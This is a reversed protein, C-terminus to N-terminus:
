SVLALLTSVFYRGYPSDTTWAQSALCRKLYNLMQSAAETVGALGRLGAASLHVYKM